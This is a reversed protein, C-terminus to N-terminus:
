LDDFLQPHSEFSLVVNNLASNISLNVHRSTDSHIQAYRDINIVSLLRHHIKIIPSILSSSRILLLISLVILIEPDVYILWTWNHPCFSALSKAFSLTKILYSWYIQIWWQVIISWCDASIHIGHIKESWVSLYNGFGVLKCTKPGHRNGADRLYIIHVSFRLNSGLNWGHRYIWRLCSVKTSCTPQLDCQHRDVSLCFRSSHNMWFFIQCKLNRDISIRVILIVPWSICLFLTHDKSHWIDHMECRDSVKESIMHGIM